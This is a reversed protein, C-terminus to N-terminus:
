QQQLPLRLCCMAPQWDAGNIIEALGAPTLQFIHCLYEHSPPRRMKAHLRVMEARERPTGNKWTWDTESM